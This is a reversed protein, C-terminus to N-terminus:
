APSVQDLLFLQSVQIPRKFQPDYKDNDKLYEKGGLIEISDKFLEENTVARPSYISFENAWSVGNLVANLSNAREEFQKTTQVSAKYDYQLLDKISFNEKERTKFKSIDALFISSQPYNNEAFSVMGRQAATITLPFQTIEIGEETAMKNQLIIIKEVLDAQFCADYIEIDKNKLGLNKMRCECLEEATINFGSNLFEENAVGTQGNGLWYRGPGGHGRM